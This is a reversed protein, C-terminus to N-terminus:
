LPSPSQWYVPQLRQAPCCYSSGYTHLFAASLGSILHCLTQPTWREPEYTVTVSECIPTTRVATIGPQDQLYVTLPGALDAQHKLAPVRLRTRGAISHVIWCHMPM